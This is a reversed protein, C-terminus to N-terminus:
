WPSDILLRVDLYSPNCWWFSPEQLISLCMQCISWKTFLKLFIRRNLLWGALSMLECALSLLHLARCYEKGRLHSAPMVPM